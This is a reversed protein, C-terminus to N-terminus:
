PEDTRLRSSTWLIAWALRAKAWKRQYNIWQGPDGSGMGGHRGVVVTRISRIRKLPRPVDPNRRVDVGPLGREGLADEEVRPHDVLDPFHVVTGGRGVPHLLLAFAADGDGGGGDGGLPPLALFGPDGLGEGALLLPDVDDVGGAVHVERGLHLARQPHEVARDDDEAADGTDLGLGFGDPALGGLIVDGADHEDVLHVPDARVKVVDEVLHLLLEARIGHPDQDRDTGLIVEGALDVHHVLLRDMVDVVGGEAGGVLDDIELRVLLGDGFGGVGFQDVHDGTDILLEALFEQHFLGDAALVELLGDAAGGDGVLQDGDGATGSELVLTDLGEEVGDDVVERARQFERRHDAHVGVVLVVLDLDDGAVVLLETRQGEFEPSVFEDAFQNEEPDIGSDDALAVGNVIGAGAAGLADAAQDLDLGVLM